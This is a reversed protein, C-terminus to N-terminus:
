FRYIKTEYTKLIATKYLKPPAIEIDQKKLIKKRLIRM